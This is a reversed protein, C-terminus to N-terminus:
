CNWTFNVKLMTHSLFRKLKTSIHMGLCKTVNRNLLAMISRLINRTALSNRALSRESAIASIFGKPAPEGDVQVKVEEGIRWENKMM